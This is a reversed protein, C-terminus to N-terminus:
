PNKKVTNKIKPLPYSTDIERLERRNPPQAMAQHKVRATELADEDAKQQSPGTQDKQPLAGSVPPWVLTPPDPPTAGMKERIKPARSVSPSYQIGLHANDLKVPDARNLIM